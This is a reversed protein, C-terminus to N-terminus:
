TKRRQLELEANAEHCRAIASLHDIYSETALAAQSNAPHAQVLERVRRALDRLPHEAAM